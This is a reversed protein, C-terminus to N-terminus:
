GNLGGIEMTINNTIFKISEESLYNVDIIVGGQIATDLSTSVNAIMNGIDNVAIIGQTKAQDLIIYVANKIKAMGAGSLPIKGTSILLNYLSRSLNHSLWYVGLISIIDISVNNVVSSVGNKFFAESIDEKVSTYINIGLDIYNDLDNEVPNTATVVKPIRFKAGVTGVFNGLCQSAMASSLYSTNDMYTNVFCLAKYAKVFPDDVGLPYYNSIDTGIIDKFILYKNLTNAYTIASKIDSIAIFENSIVVALFDNSNSSNEIEQLRSTITNGSVGVYQINDDGASILTSIDTGTGSEVLTLNNVKSTNGATDSTFKYKGNELTLTCSPTANSLSTAIIGRVDALTLATTFNLGTISVLTSDITISFEGDTISTFDALTLNLEEVTFLYGSTSVSSSDTIMLEPPVINPTVNVDVQSFHIQAMKYTVTGEAFDNAVALLNSYKKIEGIFPTTPVIMLVRNEEIIPVNAEVTITNVVASRSIPM